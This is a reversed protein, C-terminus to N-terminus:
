GRRMHCPQQILDIAEADLDLRINVVNDPM